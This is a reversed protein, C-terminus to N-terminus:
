VHVLDVQDPVTVLRLQLQAVILLEKERRSIYSYTRLLLNEDLVLRSNGNLVLPFHGVLVLSYNFKHGALCYQLWVFLALDQCCERGALLFVVM